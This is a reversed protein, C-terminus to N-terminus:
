TTLFDRIQNNQRDSAILSNLIDSIKINFLFIYTWSVSDLITIIGSIFLLIFFSFYITHFKLMKIFIVTKRKKKKVQQFLSTDVFNEVIILKIKIFDDDKVDIFWKKETENM